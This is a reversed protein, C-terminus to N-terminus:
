LKIEDSKRKEGNRENICGMGEKRM